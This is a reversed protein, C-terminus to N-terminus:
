MSGDELLQPISVTVDLERGIRLVDSEEFPRALGKLYAVVKEM